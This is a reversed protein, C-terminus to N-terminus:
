EPPEELIKLLANQAEPTLQHAEYILGLRVSGFQPSQLLMRSFERVAQIGNNEGAHIEVTDFPSVAMAEVFEGIEEQSAGILATAHAPNQAIEKIRISQM